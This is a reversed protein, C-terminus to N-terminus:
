QALIAGLAIMPCTRARLRTNGLTLILAGKQLIAETEFPSFGGEPGVLVSIEQEQISIANGLNAKGGLDCLVLQHTSSLLWEKIPIPGHVQTLWSKRSQKLGALSKMEMRRVTRQLNSERPELSHDTRLITVSTVDLQACHDMVEELDADKLAALALHVRPAPTPVQIELIEVEARKENAQTLRATAQLGKGDCLALLDGVRHRFVKVAHHSEDSDLFSLSGPTCLDLLPLYFLSESINKM